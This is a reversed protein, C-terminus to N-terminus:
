ADPRRPGRALAHEVIRERYARQLPVVELPVRLHECVRRAHGVDEEWPCVWPISLEEALWVKLLFARVDHGAERLLALAESSDVGGSVLVGVRM